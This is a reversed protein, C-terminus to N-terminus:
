NKFNNAVFSWNIHNWINEIYKARRFQYDLYYAHEWVDVTLLPTLGDKIPVYENKTNIISLKNNKDKVLWIWGSGFHSVATQTFKKKFDECSGFDRALAEKLEKGPCGQKEASLCNWFFNHNYIQSAQNYVPGSTNMIYHELPKPEDKETLTNFTNVYTQHHGNYHCELTKESLFPELANKAFPLVPLVYKTGNKFSRAFPIAVSSVRSFGLM